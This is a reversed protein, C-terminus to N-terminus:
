PCAAALLVDLFPRLNFFCLLSILVIVLTLGFSPNNIQRCPDYNINMDRPFKNDENRRPVVPINHLSIIM